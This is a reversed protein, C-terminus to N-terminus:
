ISIRYYDWREPDFRTVFEADEKDDIRKQIVDRTAFSTLYRFNMSNAQMVFMHRMESGGGMGWYGMKLALPELFVTNGLGRNEDKIEPRLTYAELPGGKAFGIIEGGPGNLRLTNIIYKSDGVSEAFVDGGFQLPRPLEDYIARLSSAFGSEGRSSMREIVPVLRLNEYVFDAQIGIELKRLDMFSQVTDFFNHRMPKPMAALIYQSMERESNLIDEFYAVARRVIVDPHWASAHANMKAMEMSKAFDGMAYGAIRDVMSLFWGLWMTRDRMGASRTVTHSRGLCSTIMAEADERMMGRWPYTTRLIMAKVIEADLGADTLMRLLTADSSVFNIVAEEHPKDVSKQPDFDHLLAAAFLHGLEERTIDGNGVYFGGVLLTVYTVELEHVINHYGYYDAGLGKSEFLNIIHDLMMTHCEDALGYRGALKAIRARMDRSPAFQHQQM